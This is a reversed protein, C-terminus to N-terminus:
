KVSQDSSLLPVESKKCYPLKGISGQGSHVPMLRILFAEVLSFVYSKAYFFDIIFFGNWYDDLDFDDDSFDCEQAAFDVQYRM